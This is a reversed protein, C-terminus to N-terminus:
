YEWDWQTLDAVDVVDKGWEPREPDLTRTRSELIEVMRADDLTIPIDEAPVSLIQSSPGILLHAMGQRNDESLAPLIILDAANAKSLARAYRLVAKCVQDSVTIAGGAYHLKRM